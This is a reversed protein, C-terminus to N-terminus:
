PGFGPEGPCQEVAGAAARPRSSDPIYDQRRARLRRVRRRFHGRSPLLITPLPHRRPPRSPCTPRCRPSSLRGNSSNLSYGDGGRSGRPVRGSCIVDTAPMEAAGRLFIGSGDTMESTSGVRVLEELQHHMEDAPEAGHLLVPGRRAAAVVSSHGRILEHGPEITPAPSDRRCWQYIEYIAYPSLVPQGLRNRQSPDRSRLAPGAFLVHAALRQFLAAGGQPASRWWPRRVARERSNSRASVEALDSFRRALAVGRQPRRGARNAVFPRPHAGLCGVAACASFLTRPRKSPQRCPWGCDLAAPSAASRGPGSDRGM